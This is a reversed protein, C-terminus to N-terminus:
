KSNVEQLFQEENKAVKLIDQHASLLHCELGFSYGFGSNCLPCYLDRVEEYFNSQKKESFHDDRHFSRGRAAAASAPSSTRHRRFVPPSPLRRSYLINTVCGEKPLLRTHLTDPLMGLQQKSNNGQKPPLAPPKSNSKDIKVLSLHQQKDSHEAGIPAATSQSSSLVSFSFIGTKLHSNSSRLNRM